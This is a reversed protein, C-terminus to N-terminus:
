LSRVQQGLELTVSPRLSRLWEVVDPPLDGAIVIVECATGLGVYFGSAGLGKLQNSVETVRDFRSDSPFVPGSAANSCNALQNPPNSPEATTRSVSSSSTAAPTTTQPPRTTDASPFRSACATAAMAIVCTFLVNIVTRM